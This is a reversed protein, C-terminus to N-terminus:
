LYDVLQRVAAREVLKSVYSLNSVPRYNSVDQPYLSQKKLLPTVVATKHPAPLHGDRLSANILATLFPLLADLCDRLVYTPM